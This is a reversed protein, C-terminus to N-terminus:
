MRMDCVCSHVCVFGLVWLCECVCWFMFWSYVLGHVLLRCLGLCVCLEVFGYVSICAFVFGHNCGFFLRVCACVCM